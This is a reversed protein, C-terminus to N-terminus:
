EGKIRPLPLISACSFNGSFNPLSLNIGFTRASQTTTPNGRNRKLPPTTNKLESQCPPRDVIAHPPVPFANCCAPKRCLARRHLLSVPKASQSSDSDFQNPKKNHVPLQKFSTARCSGKICLRYVPLNNSPEPVILNPRKARAHRRNCNMAHLSISGPAM